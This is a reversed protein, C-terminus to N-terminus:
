GRIGRYHILYNVLYLINNKYAELIIVFIAFIFYKEDIGAGQERIGRERSGARQEV